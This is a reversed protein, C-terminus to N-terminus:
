QSSGRNPGVRNSRWRLPGSVGLKWGPSRRRLRCLIDGSRSKGHWLASLVHKVESGQCSYLKETLQRLSGTQRGRVAAVVQRSENALPLDPLSLTSLIAALSVAITMRAAPLPVRM